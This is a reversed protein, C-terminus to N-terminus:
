PLGPDVDSGSLVDMIISSFLDPQEVHITHGAAPVAVWQARPFTETMEEAIRHYKHDEEGTILTVPRDFQHLHDWWSPQVGTGMGRLSAALGQSRQQLRIARARERVPEPLRKQTAFLPLEEWFRVFAAVGEREIRNALAEDRERRERRERETKLGPSSSELVLQDVRHPCMLAFSLALRGGMSYGLVHAREVGLQELLAELDAAVLKMQYRSPDKPADTRGHGIIDVRIVRFWRSWANVFPEWVAASGTFGHLLLLAPGDGDVEVHYRVGHITLKM